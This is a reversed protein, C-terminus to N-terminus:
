PQPLRGFNYNNLLSVIIKLILYNSIFFITKPSIATAIMDLKEACAPLTLFLLDFFAALFSHQSLFLHLVVASQLGDVQGKGTGPQPPL